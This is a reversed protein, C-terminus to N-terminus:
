GDDVGTPDDTPAKVVGPKVIQVIHGLYEWQEETLPFPGWVILGRGDPDDPLLIQYRTRKAPLDTM